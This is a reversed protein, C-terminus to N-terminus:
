SVNLLPLAPNVYSAAEGVLQEMRFDVLSRVFLPKRGEFSVPILGARKLRTQDSAAAMGVSKSTSVLDSM